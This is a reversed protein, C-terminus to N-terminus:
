LYRERLLRAHHAVHGATIWALARVSFPNGSAIGRRDWADAPLGKWFALTASRVADFEAVHSGWTRDNAGSTPIAADQDFSPLDSGLERAFWFARFTFVRETDNIHSAVERITWKAPAYRHMSREEPIGRLLSGLESRQTELTQVIDGTPVQSTYTRYYEAYESPDPQRNM